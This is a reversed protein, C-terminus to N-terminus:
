LDCVVKRQHVISSVEAGVDMGIRLNLKYRSHENFRDVAEIIDLAKRSAQITREAMEDTLGIAALYANGITRTRDMSPHHVGDVFRHSIEDLVGILVEASAGETFKTFALIDAFLVSVEAYSETVLETFSGAKAEPRAQLREALAGPLVNLLLRESVKQEALIREYLKKTEQHLLRVELMNHVRLLVESLDFPKSVFDKAGAQLARLKHSPQATVVLVPLYGGTEIEKLNEMVQFGDMGPMQLDLLILDYHNTLHSSKEEFDLDHPALGNESLLRPLLVQHVIAADVDGGGLRHYRSVSLTAARLPDGPGPVTVRFVATDCTGGGFDFVLLHKTEGPSGLSALGNRSAHDLFAALPEDLLDGPGVPLGAARAAALTDARQAAQFSAPVTVVVRDPVPAIGHTSVGKAAAAALFGLVTAGVESANRLGEPARHYTRRLGIDNKCDWFLDTNRALGLESGRARLRKAGEGVWSKGRHLAVVSPVLVHVYEGEPTTQTVEVTHLTRGGGGGATAETVTSNTTGLDIGLVRVRRAPARGSAPVVLTLDAPSDPM